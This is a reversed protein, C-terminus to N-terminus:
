PDLLAFLCFYLPTSPSGGPDTDNQGYTRLLPHQIHTHAHTHACVISVDFLLILDSIYLGQKAVEQIHRLIRLM